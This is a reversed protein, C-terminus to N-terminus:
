QTDWLGESQNWTKSYIYLPRWYYAINYMRDIISNFINEGSAVSGFIIAKYKQHRLRSEFLQDVVCARYDKHIPNFLRQRMGYSTTWRERIGNKDNNDM